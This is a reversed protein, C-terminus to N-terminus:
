HALSSRFSRAPAAADRRRYSMCAVFVVTFLLDSVLSNRFFMWTPTSGYQPLGVTLAQILGGFNKLYGPDILWSFANTIAYFIASGALSAPILTKLSPRSSLALGLVGVLAFAFYRCFILPDFLSAGYYFDLAVDSILLAALPVTFKYKRPFYVAGCLAIAALPAFNSLWASGGGQVVIATLIRYVVALFVLVLAPIM